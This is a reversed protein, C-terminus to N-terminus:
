LSDFDIGVLDLHQRSAAALGGMKLPRGLACAEYAARMQRACLQPPLQGNGTGLGPCLLTRIPDQQTRNHSRIAQLIARFALYANAREKLFMPVRMTPASVLWPVQAHHTPVIIAQGVPLEGDHNAFLEERVRRELEWGFHTSLALDLGGDMFGFSNAPSVIADARECLIDRQHAHVHPQDAFAKNWEFVLHTDFDVLSIELDRLPMHTM